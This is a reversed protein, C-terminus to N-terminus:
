ISFAQIGNITIDTRIDKNIKALCDVGKPAIIDMKIGNYDVKLNVSIPGMPTPVSGKVWKLGAINPEIIVRKFSPEIPRVGLVYAGLFYAPAASWAHCHSRTLTYNYFGPFTEWCTTAGYELMIGWNKNIDLIITEVKGLKALAEYYFFSMFPSGIRVFRQPPNILYDELIRKREGYVCNCLYVMANTQMSIVNSKIDDGHISDIFANERENWLHKNINSKLCDSISKYFEIDGERELVGAIHQMVDMCKALLANQHTAIGDSPTDMDSWDLMNWANIKLLGEKNLHKSFNRMSKVLYPYISELFVKDGSYDYYEKCSLSWLMSWTPVITISGSPVHSEPIESRHMSRAALMLGRKVLDYAGFVYYGILAENRADGIWFAQEYAPCDVFTDEMCLRTTRASISWIENLKYDSCKFEGVQAVPYNSQNVKVSYIKLSAKQNRIAMIAYRFGRRQYSSYVQRGKKTKYRLTNNMDAAYEIIGDHISEVMNFDLVIGTEAEIDFELFGSVEEGFDITFEMDGRVSPLVETFSDNDVIMYQYQPLINMIEIIEKETSMIYVNDEVIFTDEIPNVQKTLEQLEKIDKIQWARLYNKNGWDICVGDISTVNLIEKYDFPGISVFKYENGKYNLAFKIRYEFKFHINTSFRQYIGSIDVMFFNEGKNLEVEKEFEGIEFIYEEGNIKIREKSEPWKKLLHIEGRMDCPSNICTCLIGLQMKDKSNYLAPYFSNNFDVCIHQGVPKVVQISSVRAPYYSQWTLNPIDRPVLSGWPQMGYEGIETSSNWILDSFDINKWGDNFLSADFVEIWPLSMNIRMNQQVFGRHEINKWTKDTIIRKFVEKNKYFDVQCIVGARGEIYQSTSTGFHTVLIAIVNEGNILMDKIEYEDYSLEFPWSRMPGRGIKRGNVYLYYRSDATIYLNVSDYETQKLFVKRFCVWKNIPKEKKNEWIWKAKWDM